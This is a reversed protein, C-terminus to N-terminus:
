VERTVTGCTQSDLPTKWNLKVVEPPACGLITYIIPCMEHRIFKPSISPIRILKGQCAELIKFINFFILQVNARQNSYM